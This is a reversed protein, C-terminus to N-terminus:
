RPWKPPQSRRPSWSKASSGSRGRRPCPVLRRRKCIRAGHSVASRGLGARAPALQDRIQRLDWVLVTKESTRAILKTGDHSFVLPTPTVPRLTTLRALERGTAADALLVQDPAIGLAM